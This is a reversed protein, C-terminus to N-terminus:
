WVINIGPIFCVAVVATPGLAFMDMIITTYFSSIIGDGIGIFSPLLTLYSICSSLVFATYYMDHNFQVLILFIIRPISTILWAFFLWKMHFITSYAVWMNYVPIYAKWAPIGYEKFIRAPMTYILISGVIVVIAIALLIGLLTAM